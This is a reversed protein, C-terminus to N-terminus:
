TSKEKEDQKHTPLATNKQVDTGSYTKLSIFFSFFFQFFFVVMLRLEASFTFYICFVCLLESVKGTYTCCLQVYLKHHSSFHIFLAFYM